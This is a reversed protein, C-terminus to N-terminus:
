IFQSLYRNFLKVDVNLRYDLMILFENELTVMEKLPIGSLLSYFSDDYIIDELYKLSLLISIFFIKYINNGILAIQNNCLIRDMLILAHVVTSSEIEGELVIRKLYDNFSLSPKKLDFLLSKQNNEIEQQCTLNNVIQPILRLIQHKIHENAELELTHM